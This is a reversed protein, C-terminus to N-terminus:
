KFPPGWFGLNISKRIGSLVPLVEHHLWSPFFVVTGRTQPIRYSNPPWYVLLDGGEYNEPDSLQLVATMKRSQGPAADVHRDYSAGVKYTQMWGITTPYLDFQWYLDNVYRGLSALGSLVQANPEFERTNSSKCSPLSYPELQEGALEISECLHELYGELVVAYPLANPGMAEPTVEEMKRLFEAEPILKLFSM